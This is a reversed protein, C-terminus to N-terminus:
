SMVKLLVLNVGAVRADRTIAELAQAPAQVGPDLVFSLATPSLATRVSAAQVGRTRSAAAAIRKLTAERSDTVDAFVVVRGKALARTVTAHDYVAAVKDELCVGCALM